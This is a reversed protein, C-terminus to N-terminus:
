KKLVKAKVSKGSKKDLYSFLITEANNQLWSNIIETLMERSMIIGDDVGFVGSESSVDDSISLIANVDQSEM